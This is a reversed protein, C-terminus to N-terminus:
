QILLHENDTMRPDYRQYYNAGGFELTRIQQAPLALATMETVQTISSANYDKVDQLLTAQNIYDDTFQGYADFFKQNSEVPYNYLFSAARDHDRLFSRTFNPTTFTGNNDVITRTGTTFDVTVQTTFEGSVVTATAIPGSPVSGSGIIKVPTLNDIIRQDSLREAAQSFQISGSQFTDLTEIFTAYKYSTPENVVYDFSPCLASLNKSGPAEELAGTYIEIGEYLAHMKADMGTIPFQYRQGHAQVANYNYYYFIAQELNYKTANDIFVDEPSTDLFHFIGTVDLPEGEERAESLPFYATENDYGFNSPLISLYHHSPVLKTM